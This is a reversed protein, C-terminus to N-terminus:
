KKPRHEKFAEQIEQPWRNWEELTLPGQNKPTEWDNLRALFRDHDSLEKYRENQEKRSLKRFEEFTLGSM